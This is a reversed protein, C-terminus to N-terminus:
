STAKPASSSGGGVRIEDTVDVEIRSPRGIEDGMGVIVRKDTGVVSPRLPWHPRLPGLVLIKRYAPLRPLSARTSSRLVIPACQRSRTLM